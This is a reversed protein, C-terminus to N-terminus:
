KRKKMAYITIGAAAVGGGLIYPWNNKFFDGLTYKPAVTVTPAVAPAPAPQTIERFKAEIEKYEKYLNLGENLLDTLTQIAM